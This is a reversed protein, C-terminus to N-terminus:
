RNIPDLSGHSRILPLEQLPMLYSLAAYYFSYNCLKTLIYFPHRKHSFKLSIKICRSSILWQSQVHAAHTFTLNPNISLANSSVPHSICLSIATTATVSPCVPRQLALKTTALWCLSPVNILSSRKGGQELMQKQINIYIYIYIQCSSVNTHSKKLTDHELTRTSALSFDTPLKQLAQHPHM